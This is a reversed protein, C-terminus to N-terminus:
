KKGAASNAFKSQGEWPKEDKSAEVGLDFMQWVYEAPNPLNELQASRVKFGKMLERKLNDEAKKRATKARAEAKRAKEMEEAYINRKAPRAM